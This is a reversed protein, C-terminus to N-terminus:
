TEDTQSSDLVLAVPTGIPSTQVIVTGTLSTSPDSQWGISNRATVRFIIADGQSLLLPSGTFYSMPFVCSAESILTEGGCSTDEEVYSGSSALLEVFYADIPSGNAEPVQWSLQV